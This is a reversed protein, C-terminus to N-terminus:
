RGSFLRSFAGDRRESCCPAGVGIQTSQILYRGADPREEVLLIEGLPGVGVANAIALEVSLDM